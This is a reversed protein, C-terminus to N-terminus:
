HVRYKERISLHHAHTEDLRMRLQQLHRDFLLLDNFISFGKRHTFQGRSNMAACGRLIPDGICEQVVNQLFCGDHCHKHYDVRLEDDIRILATCEPTVCVTLRKQLRVYQGVRQPLRSDLDPSQGSLIRQKYKEAMGINELILRSTEAIPRSLQRILQQAENLSRTERVPHLDCELIKRMLRNIQEVSKRWSEDYWAKDSMIFRIGTAHAALFRFAENDFMFTNSQDFPVQVGTQQHLEALLKRLIPATEGPKYFTARANTFVFLINRAASRNLHRLLEKVCYRFYINLRTLSPKLLICIGNLHEYQSIYSLINDFNKSEYQMGRTDGVGPGDILRVRRGGIDFVYSRCAQTASAGDVNPHENQDANGINVHHEEEATSDALVFSCPILIKLDEQLAQDLTNYHLYNVLANIFTSKGVGTEGLLLINIDDRSSGVNHAVFM